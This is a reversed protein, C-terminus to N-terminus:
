FWLLLPREPDDREPEYVRVPIAGAPGPITRDEVSRVPQKPVPSSATMALMAARRDEPTADAKFSMGMDALANVMMEASPHLPMVDGRRKSRSRSPASREGGTHSQM